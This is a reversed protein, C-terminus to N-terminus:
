FLALQSRIPGDGKWLSLCAPSGLWFTLPLRRGLSSEFQQKKVQMCILMCIKKVQMCSIPSHPNLDLRADVLKTVPASYSLCLAAHVVAPLSSHTLMPSSVPPRLPPSTTPSSSTFPPQPGSQGPSWPGKSQIEHRLCSLAGDTLAELWLFVALNLHYSLGVWVREPM